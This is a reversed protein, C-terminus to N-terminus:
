QESLIKYADGIEKFRETAAKKKEEPMRDPHNKMALRQYAKKIERQSSSSDVGLIKYAFERASVQRGGIQRKGGSGELQAFFEDRMQKPLELKAAIHRLKAMESGTLKQDSLAVNIACIFVIRRYQLSLDAVDESSLPTTSYRHYDALIQEAPMNPSGMAQRVLSVVMQREHESEEGDAHAVERAVSYMARLVKAGRYPNTKLHPFYQDNGILMRVLWMFVRYLLYGYLLYILFGM